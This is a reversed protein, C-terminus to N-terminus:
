CCIFLGNRFVFNLLAEPFSPFVCTKFAISFQTALVFVLIVIPFVVLVARYYFVLKGFSGVIDLALVIEFYDDKLGDAWIQLYL